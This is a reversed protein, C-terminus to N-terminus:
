EGKLIEYWDPKNAVQSLEYALYAMSGAVTGIREAEKKPNSDSTIVLQSLAASLSEVSANWNDVINDVAMTSVTIDIEAYKSPARRTSVKLSDPVTWMVPYSDDVRWAGCENLAIRVAQQSKGLIVAVDQTTMPEDTLRLLDMVQTQLRKSVFTSM